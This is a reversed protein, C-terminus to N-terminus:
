AKLLMKEVKELRKEISDLKELIKDYKRANTKEKTKAGLIESVPVKTIQAMKILVFTPPIARGTEYASVSKSSLGLKKALEHQSLDTQLRAKKINKGLDHSASM